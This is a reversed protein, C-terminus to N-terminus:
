CSDHALSFMGGRQDRRMNEQMTPRAGGQVADIRLRDHLAKYGRPRTKAKAEHTAVTAKCTPRTSPTNRLNVFHHHISVLVFVADDAVLLKDWHHDLQYLHTDAYLAFMARSNRHEAHARLNHLHVQSTTPIPQLEGDM